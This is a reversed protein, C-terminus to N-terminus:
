PAIAEGLPVLEHRGPGTFRLLYGTKSAIRQGSGLSLRPYLGRFGRRETLAELREMLFDAGPRQALENLGHTLADCALYADAQLAEDQLPLGAQALWAKLPARRAAQGQPVEHPTAVLAAEKLRAPVKGLEHGLLTASLYLAQGAAFPSGDLQQLDRSRLWLVHSSPADVVASRNTEAAQEIPRELVEFGDRLLAERLTQAGIRASPDDSRLWQVIRHPARERLHHAMLAAELRVGASAYLTYYGDQDTRPAELHPYLCPLAERECYDHVATWDDQPGSGLVGGLMAFVPQGQAHARLQAEWSSAPGSLEWVHLTWPRDAARHISSALRKRRPESPAAANHASVCAQLTDRALRAQAPSVQGAIVTALHLTSADVGPAPAQSVERLYAMLSRLQEPALVYRPMLYDLARGSPDVGESLAIRLSTEDYAPRGIGAAAAGTGPARASFLASGDIPPVYSRGEAGGQASRRHCNACAAAAGAMHLGGARTATIEGQSSRGERYLQRGASSDVDQAWAGGPWAQALALVLAGPWARARRRTVGGPRM